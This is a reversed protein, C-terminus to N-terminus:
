VAMSCSKMAPGRHGGAFDPIFFNNVHLCCICSPPLSHIDSAQTTQPGLGPPPGPGPLGPAPPAMTNSATPPSPPNPTSTYTTAVSTNFQPSCSTITPSAYPPMLPPPPVSMYNPDPQVSMYNPDPPMLPPPAAYGGVCPQMGNGYVNPMFGMTPPPPPASPWPPLPSPIHPWQQQSAQYSYPDHFQSNEQPMYPSPMYEPAQSQLLSEPATISSKIFLPEKQDVEPKKAQNGKLEHEGHAFSCESGNRCTGALFWTCVATKHCINVKKLETEQHAFTCMPNTCTGNALMDPCLRTKTLNPPANLEGSGHAFRCDTGHKCLGKLHYRCLKTKRLQTELAFLSRQEKSEKLEKDKLEQDKDTDQSEYANLEPYGEVIAM